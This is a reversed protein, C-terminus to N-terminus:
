SRIIIQNLILSIQAQGAPAGFHDTLNFINKRKFLVIDFIHQVKKGGGRM